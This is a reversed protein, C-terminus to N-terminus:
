DNSRIYNMITKVFAFAVIITAKVVNGSLTSETIDDLCFHRHHITRKCYFKGNLEVFNALVSM